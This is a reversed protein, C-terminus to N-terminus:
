RRAGCFVGCASLHAASAARCRPPRGAATPESASLSRGGPHSRPSRGSPPTVWNRLLVLHPGGQPTLAVRSAPGSPAGPVLTSGLGGETGWIDARPTQVACLGGSDSVHCVSVASFGVTRSDATWQRSILERPGEAETENRAGLAFTVLTPRWLWLELCVPTRLSPCRVERPSSLCLPAKQFGGRRGGTRGPETLHRRVLRPSFDEQSATCFLARPLSAGGRPGAPRAGM